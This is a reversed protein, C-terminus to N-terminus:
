RICEKLAQDYALNIEKTKAEALDRLEAGLTAVKDPHYQSVASRYAATVQERTSFKSIGLVDYWARGAGSGAPPPQPQGTPSGQGPAAAKRSLFTSALWYGLAACVTVTALLRPNM